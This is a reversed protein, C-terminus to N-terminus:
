EAPCPNVKQLKFPDVQFIKCSNQLLSIVKSVPLKFGKLFHPSSLSLHQLGRWGWVSGGMGM